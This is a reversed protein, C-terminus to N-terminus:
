TKSGQTPITTTAPVSATLKTLPELVARIRTRVRERGLIALVDWLSPTAKKGTIVWRLPGLLSKDLGKDASFAEVLAQVTERSWAYQVDVKEVLEGFIAASEAGTKGAILADKMDFSVSGSFFYSAYEVFDESKKWRDGCAKVIQELYADSFLREKLYAVREADSRKQHLYKGNIDLLKKLDFVPGGLVIRELKFDRVFEDMSFMEVIKGDREITHAMTGLFNIMADPLYGAEKFWTLSVPNKRKSVKSGDPNRLLPLHIFEPHQWGFSQYLLVHKPTSSIWEEGRLVHTIGMLHDDVVNAL